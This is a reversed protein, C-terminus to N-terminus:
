TSSSRPGPPNAQERDERDDGPDRDQGVQDLAVALLAVVDGVQLARNGALAAGVAPHEHV